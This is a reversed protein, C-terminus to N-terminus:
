VSSSNMNQSFNRFNRKTLYFLSIKLSFDFIEQPFDFPSHRAGDIELRNEMTIWLHRTSIRSFNEVSDHHFHKWLSLNKAGFEPFEFIKTNQVSKQSTEPFM